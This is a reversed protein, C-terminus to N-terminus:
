RNDLWLYNDLLVRAPLGRHKASKDAYSQFRAHAEPTLHKLGPWPPLEGSTAERRLAKAVVSDLPIELWSEIASLGYAKRLYHNYLCSRLFLNM